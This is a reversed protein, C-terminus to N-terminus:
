KSFELMIAKYQKYTKNKYNCQNYYLKIDILEKHKNANLKSMLKAFEVESDFLPIDKYKKQNRKAMIALLYQENIHDIFDFCIEKQAKIIAIEEESKAKELKENFYKKIKYNQNVKKFCIKIMENVNKNLNENIIQIPLDDRKEIIEDTLIPGSIFNVTEVENKYNPQQSVTTVKSVTSCGTFICCSVITVLSIVLYKKM